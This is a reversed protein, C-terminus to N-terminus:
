FEIQRPECGGTDLQYFELDTAAVADVRAEREVSPNWDLALIAFIHAVLCCILSLFFRM